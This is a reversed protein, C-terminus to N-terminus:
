PLLRAAYLGAIEAATLARTYVAVHAMSGDWSNASTGRAGVKFTGPNTYPDAQAQTSVFAGNIYLSAIDQFEDFIFAWHVWQGVAPWAATWTPSAGGQAAVWRVDLNGLKVNLQPAGSGNGGMLTHAALTNNRYAWGTMTLTTGNVFPAYSSSIRGPGAVDFSTSTSSGAVPSSGVSGFVLGGDATGDRGFTSLDYGRTSPGLAYYVAPGLALSARKYANSPEAYTGLATGEARANLMLEADDGTLAALGTPRVWLTKAGKSTQVTAPVGEDPLAPNGWLPVGDPAIPTATGPVPM